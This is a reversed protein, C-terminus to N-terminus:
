GSISSDYTVLWQRKLGHSWQSYEPENALRTSFYEMFHHKSLTDLMDTFLNNSLQNDDSVMETPYGPPAIRGTKSAM